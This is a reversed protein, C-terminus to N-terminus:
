GPASVGRGALHRARGCFAAGGVGRRRADATVILDNIVVEGPESELQDEDVFCVVFGVVRGEEEAVFVEGDNEEDDLEEELGAVYGETMEEGRRRSPRFVREHDQLEANLAVVPRDDPRWVCVTM